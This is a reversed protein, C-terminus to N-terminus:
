AESDTLASIESDSAHNASKTKRNRKKKTEKKSKAQKLSKAFEKEFRAMAKQKGQHYREAQKLEDLELKLSKVAHILDDVTKKQAETKDQNIQFVKTKKAASKSKSTKEKLKKLASKAKELKNKQRDLERTLASKAKILSKDHAAEANKLESQTKNIQALATLTQTKSGTKSNASSKKSITKRKKQTANTM